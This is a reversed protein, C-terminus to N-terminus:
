LKEAALRLEQLPFTFSDRGHQKLLHAASDTVRRAGGQLCWPM